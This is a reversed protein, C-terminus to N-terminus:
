GSVLIWFGYVLFWCWAGLLKVLRQSAAVLLLFGEKTLVESPSALVGGESFNRLAFGAGLIM